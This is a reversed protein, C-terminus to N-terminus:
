QPHGLTWLSDVHDVQDLTRRLPSPRASLKGRAHIGEVTVPDPLARATPATGSAGGWAFVPPSTPRRPNAGAPPAKSEVPPAGATLIPPPTKVHRCYAAGVGRPPRPPVGQGLRLTSRGPWRLCRRSGPWQETQGHDCLAHRCLSVRSRPPTLTQRTGRLDSGSGSQIRSWRLCSPSRTRAALSWALRVCSPSRSRDPTSRSVIWLISDPAVSARMPQSMRMASARSMGTTRSNSSPHGLSTGGAASAGGCVAPPIGTPSQSPATLASTVLLAWSRDQRFPAAHVITHADKVGRTFPPGTSRLPPLRVGRFVPGPTGRESAGRQRRGHHPAHRVLHLEM